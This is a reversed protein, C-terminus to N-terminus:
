GVRSRYLTKLEDLRPAEVETNTCLYYLHAGLHQWECKGRVREQGLEYCRGNHVHIVEIKRNEVRRPPGAYMAAGEDIDAIMDGCIDCCFIPCSMENKFLIKIM